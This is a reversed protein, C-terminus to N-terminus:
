GADRRRIQRGGYFDGVARIDVRELIGDLDDVVAVSVVVIEGGVKTDCTGGSGSDGRSGRGRYSTACGARRPSSGARIGGRFGGRFARGVRGRGRCSGRRAAGGGARLGGGGRRPRARGGRRGSGSGCGCRSGIAVTGVAELHLSAEEGQGNAGDNSNCLIGGEYSQVLTSLAM